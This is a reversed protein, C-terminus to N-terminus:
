IIYGMILIQILGIIFGIIAGLYEIFKMEKKSVRKVIEEIEHIEFENIRKQILDFLDKQFEITDVSDIENLIIQVIDPKLEDMIEEVWFLGKVRSSIIGDLISSVKDESILSKLSEPKLFDNTIVEAISYAIKERNKPILGHFCLFKKKPNFLLHIALVNTIYGIISSIIPILIYLM